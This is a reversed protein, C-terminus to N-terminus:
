LSEKWGSLSKSLSDIARYVMDRVSKVKSLHLIEAIEQYSFGELYYLVLAERQNPPLKRCVQEIIKKQDSSYLRTLSHPSSTIKLAFANDDIFKDQLVIKETRKLQRLLNRRLSAYLYLKVSVAVGLNRRNKILTLFVDQVADVVLDENRTFQRGYNYLKNAYTRYIQGIAHDNGRVFELWIQSESEDRDPLPLAHGLNFDGTFQFPLSRSM